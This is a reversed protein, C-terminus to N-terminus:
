IMLRDLTTDYHRAPATTVVGGYGYGGMYMYMYICVYIYCPVLPVRSSTKNSPYKLETLM